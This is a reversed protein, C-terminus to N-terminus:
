LTVCLFRNVDFAANLSCCCFQFLAIFEIWTWCLKQSAISKVSEIPCFFFRWPFRKATAIQAEDERFLAACFSSKMVPRGGEGEGVGCWDWGAELDGQDRQRGLSHEGM